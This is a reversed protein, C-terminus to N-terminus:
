TITVKGKARVMADILIRTPESHEGKMPPAEDFIARVLRVVSREDSGAELALRIAALFDDAHPTGVVTPERRQQQAPLGGPEPIPRTRENM